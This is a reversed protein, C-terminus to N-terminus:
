HNPLVIRNLDIVDDYPRISQPLGGPLPVADKM